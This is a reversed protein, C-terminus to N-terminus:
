RFGRASDLPNFAFYSAKSFDKEVMFHSFNGFVGSCPLLDTRLIYIYKLVILPDCVTIDNPDLEACWIHRYLHKEYKVLLYVHQELCLM